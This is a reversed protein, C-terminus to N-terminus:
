ETIDINDDTIMKAVLQGNGYIDYLGMVRWYEDDYLLYNNKENGYILCAAVSSGTAKTTPNYEVITPNSAYNTCTCYDNDGTGYKGVFTEDEFRKCVTKVLTDESSSLSTGNFSATVGVAEKRLIVYNDNMSQKSTPDLICGSTSIVGYDTSVSTCNNGDSTEIKLYNNNLLEAVYVKVEATGNFIDPNDSAYLEAASVIMDVKSNYLRKNINKNILIISPVAIVAIVGIIVIVVLLEPLTFGKKKM